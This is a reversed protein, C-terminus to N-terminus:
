DVIRHLHHKRHHNNLAKTSKFKSDEFLITHHSTATRMGANNYMYGDIQIKFPQTIHHTIHQTIHNKHYDDIQFKFATTSMEWSAPMTYSWNRVAISFKMFESPSDLFIM